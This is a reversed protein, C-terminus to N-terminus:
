TDEKSKHLYMEACLPSREEGEGERKEEGGRVKTSQDGKGGEKRVHSGEGGANWRKPQNRCSIPMTWMRM